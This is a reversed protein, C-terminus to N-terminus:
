ILGFAIFVGVEVLFATGIIASTLFADGPTM